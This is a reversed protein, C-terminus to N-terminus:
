SRYQLVLGREVARKDNKIDCTNYGKSTITTIVSGQDSNENSGNNINPSIEKEVIVEACYEVKGVDIIDSSITIKFVTRNPNAIDWSDTINRGACQIGETNTIRLNNEGPPPFVYQISTSNNELFLGNLDWFLACEIGTNAAYFAYQSERGSSSLIVQKLSINIISAGVALVMISVLISFLLTFGKKNSKNKKFNLIKM